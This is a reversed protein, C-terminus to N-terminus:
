ERYAFACHVSWSIQLPVIFEEPINAITWHVGGRIPLPAIFEDTINYVTHHHRYRHQSGNSYVPPEVFLISFRLEAKPRHIKM